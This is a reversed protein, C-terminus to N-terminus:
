GAPSAGLKAANSYASIATGLKSTDTGESVMATTEVSAEQAEQRAKMMDDFWADAEETWDDPFPPAGANALDTTIGHFWGADVDQGMTRAYQLRCYLENTAKEDGEPPVNGEDDVIMMGPGSIFLNYGTVQRFMAKDDDTIKAMERAGAADATSWTEKPGINVIQALREQPAANAINKKGVAGGLDGHMVTGDDNLQFLAALTEPSTLQDTGTFLGNKFLTGTSIKSPIRAAENAAQNVEYASPIATPANAAYAHLRNTTANVLM